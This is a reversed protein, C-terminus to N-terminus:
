RRTDKDSGTRDRGPPAVNPPPRYSCVSTRQQMPRGFSGVYLLDMINVLVPCNASAVAISQSTNPTPPLAWASRVSVVGSPSLGPSVNRKTKTVSPDVVACEDIM